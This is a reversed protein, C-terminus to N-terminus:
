SFPWLSLSGDSSSTITNAGGSFFFPLGFKADISIISVLGVLCLNLKEAVSLQALVKIAQQQTCLAKTDYVTPWLFHPVESTDM